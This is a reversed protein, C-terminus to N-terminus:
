MVLSGVVAITPVVHDTSGTAAGESFYVAIFSGLFQSEGSEERQSGTLARRRSKGVIFGVYWGELKM